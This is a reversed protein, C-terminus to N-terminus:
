NLQLMEDTFVTEGHLSIGKASLYPVLIRNVFIEETKGEVIVMVEIFKSM